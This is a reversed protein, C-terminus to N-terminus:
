AHELEEPNARARKQTWEIWSVQLAPVIFLTTTMSFVLGGAVAIGLPQLIKGGEGLGLAIPLMGLGTTMSTMLIPRLRVRAVEIAALRPAVGEKVKRQLFDVLIISNAVSLGNLLIVGLLSNLSLSSQFVFLSIIVGIFGLPVAVLVLLSNMISGFQFVMTLFILVISLSVAVALQKLASNLERKSDEVEITPAAKNSATNVEIAPKASDTPSTTADSTTASNAALFKAKRESEIQPWRNVVDTAVKVGQETKATDDKKGRGEITFIQQGNRRRIAIKGTDREVSALAKLPVIRSGIGIPLAGLEEATTVYKQDFRMFIAMDENDFDLRMVTQGDTATRTLDALDSLTLRMGQAQLLPFQESRPRVIVSSDASPNPRGWVSQFLKREQLEDVVDRTLTAMAENDLGRVTAEFDPPNPLQMESPNWADIWYQTTPTNVFIEEAQKWMEKMDHKDKLRFMIFSNNPRSMQTFTYAIKDGFKSLLQNEIEETQAEMQRTVSNGSTNVSLTLWDTDPKGIVERPLRPVVVTILLAFLAMLGAYSVLKWRKNELFYALVRSYTNELWLLVGEFLSPQEHTMGNKMLHLRITPVLILAVIASFGHSFVVAKALDGLIAYSLESTFALPIFVVLSAITSAIVAFQVEHVAKTIIQLREEFNFKKGPQDQQAKDFHRFINEMVVVSADVNMGASLALGGLSILNLNMGTLRMLIFALVLSLPIEIAATVVNKLNGVFLFLIIVALGAALAVEKGVNFVASRIFESPDVIERYQIDKPLGPMVEKVIDKVEEAMAKINGGPKPSAFLIVSSAGSTKFLRTSDSPLTLDVRAIEGLSVARGAPTAIQIHKFEEVSQVVRPFEIRLNADKMVISGGAFSDVSHVIANAIDSPFLQLAALAEPRLEVLVQRRQPNFLEASSAGRVRALRPALVPELIQHIETLSREQSFFSLALFGGEDSGGWVSYRDKCEPPLRGLWGNFVAQVERVAEDSDGGWKFDIDYSANQASYTAEINEVELPGRRIARFSEELYRGYNRMFADPALNSGVRVSVKPKSSNPFLSVPLQFACVIGILSLVALVLYVRM